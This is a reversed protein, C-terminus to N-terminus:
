PERTENFSGGEREEERVEGAGERGVGRVGCLLREGTRTRLHLANTVGEGEERVSLRDQPCGSLLHSRRM